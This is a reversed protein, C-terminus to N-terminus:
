CAPGWHWYTIGVPVDHTSMERGEVRYTIEYPRGWQGKVRMWPGKWQKRDM